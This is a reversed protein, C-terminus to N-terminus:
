MCSFTVCFYYSSCFCLIFTYIVHSNNFFFVISTQFQSLIITLMSPLLPTGLRWHKAIICFSGKDTVSSNDFDIRYNFSWAHKVIISGNACTKINGSILLQTIKIYM